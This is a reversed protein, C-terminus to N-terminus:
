FTSFVKEMLRGIEHNRKVKESELRKLAGGIAKM